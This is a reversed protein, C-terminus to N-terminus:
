QRLAEISHRLNMRAKSEYRKRFFGTSYIASRSLFSELVATRGAAFTRAEVWAYEERIQREYNDFVETSRGLISLDVDIVLAADASAPPANHKTALILASVTEALEESLRAGCIFDVAKDASREENDKAKSDYIADHFWIALEVANLDEALSAALSLQDFCDAIHSLNHYARAPTAYSRALSDFAEEASGGAGLRQWLSFWRDQLLAPM